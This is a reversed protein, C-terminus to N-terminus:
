SSRIYYDVSKRSMVVCKRSIRLVSCKCLVEVCEGKYGASEREVTCEGARNCM